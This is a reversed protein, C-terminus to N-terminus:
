AILTQWSYIWFLIFLIQVIWKKKRKAINKNLTSESLEPAEPSDIKAFKNYITVFLSVLGFFLFIFALIRWIWVFLANYGAVLCCFAVVLFIVGAHAIDSYVGRERFSEYRKKEYSSVDLMSKILSSALIFLLLIFVIYNLIINEKLM